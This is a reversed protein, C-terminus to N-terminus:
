RGPSDLSDTAGESPAVSPRTRVFVRLLLQRRARRWARLLQESEDEELEKHGYRARSYQRGLLAVEQEVSPFRRALEGVYEQPTQTAVPGIGALGGLRCMRDFPGFPMSVWVLLLHYLYWLLALGGLSSAVIIITQSSLPDGFTDTIALGQPQSLEEETGFLDADELLDELDEQGLESGLRGEVLPLPGEEGALASAYGPTPEFEVWGYGPFYAETWAHSHLDRVIYVEQEQVWDGPAYGAVLRSPIGITRLMVAMASGFYDSYGRRLTFLFYDVGDADFPPTPITQTYPMAQLFAQISRAKDYPTTRDRTLATALDRVRDMARSDPLQLYRDTVWGPYNTAASRLEQPTAASAQSVVTYSAGRDLEGESRVYLIDPPSVRERTVHLAVLTGQGVANRLAEANDVDAESRVEVVEQSTDDSRQVLVHTVLIDEPLLQLLTESLDGGRRPVYEGDIRALAQARRRPDWAERLDPSAGPDDRVAPDLYLWTRFPLPAGAELALDGDLPLTSVPLASPTYVLTITYDVEVTRRDQRPQGLLFADQLDAEEVDGQIWGQPTYVPYVRARWYLERHTRVQFLPEDELSITGQFPLFAGFSRFAHPRRSPLGAFLRGFGGEADQVPARIDNWADKVVDLATTRIPLLSVLLFLPVLLLLADQLVGLGQGPAFTLGTRTWERERQLVTMRVAFVMTVFLYLVLRPAFDDPLYSMASTLALGGPLVSLWLNHLRFAAWASFYSLVWGMAGLGFAFPLTDIGIGEGRATLWWLELRTNLERFRDLWGESDALAATSWYVLTAGVLLALLHWAIGPGRLKAVLMGALAGVVVVGSLSPAEVWRAANITWVVVLLSALLLLLALWGEQPTILKLFRVVPVHLRWRGQTPRVMTGASM